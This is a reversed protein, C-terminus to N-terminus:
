SRFYLEVRSQKLSRCIQDGRHWSGKRDRAREDEPYDAALGAEALRKGAEETAMSILDYLKMVGGARTKFPKGDKGNVTGYGAHELLAHGALGAKKRPASYRSSICISVNIWWM